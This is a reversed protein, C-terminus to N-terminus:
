RVSGARTRGILFNALTKEYSVDINVRHYDVATDIVVKQLAQLYRNVAKHYRDAIENPEAFVAPGGEMDIFRMPRHFKFELEQPDLLHVAALDHNRFRFHEFCSRLEQPDALFDSIVIVLARQRIKEALEHLLRVLSTGGTPRARELLDFLVSLHAPNRRPPIETVIDDAICSLGVADGQM